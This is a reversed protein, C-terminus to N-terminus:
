QKLAAWTISLSGTPSVANTGIYIVVNDIYSIPGDAIGFKGKTFKKDEGSMELIPKLQDFKTQDDRNKGKFIIQTQNVNLQFSYWINAEKVNEGTVFPGGWNGADWSWMEWKALADTDVSLHYRAGTEQTHIAISQWGSKWMWDWEVTYQELEDMKAVLVNIEDLKTIEMVMNNANQPDKAIIGTTGPKDPMVNAWKAPVEDVKQNQFNDSFITGSLVPFSIVISMAFILNLVITKCM